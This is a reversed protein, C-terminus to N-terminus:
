ALTILNKKWLSGLLYLIDQNAQETKVEYQSLMIESLEKIGRRGDLNKWILYASENLFFQPLYNQNIILVRSFFPIEKLGTQPRAKKSMLQQLEKDTLLQKLKRYGWGKFPSLSIALLIVYFFSNKLFVRRNIM